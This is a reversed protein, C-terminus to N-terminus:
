RGARWERFATRLEAEAQPSLSDTALGGLVAITERMQRVYATCNACGAIHAEFRADDTPSLAGELHDTVLEVLERCSLPGGDRRHRGLLRNWLDPM